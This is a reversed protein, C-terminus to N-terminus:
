LGRKIVVPAACGSLALVLFRQREEFAKRFSNKESSSALCLRPLEALAEAHGHVVLPGLPNAALVPKQGPVAAPLEGLVVVPPLRLASPVKRLVDQVSVELTRLGELLEASVNRIESSRFSPKEEAGDKVQEVVLNYAPRNGRAVVVGERGLSEVPQKREARKFASQQVRVLAGQVGRFAVPLPQFLAAPDLAHAAPAVAPVVGAHLM